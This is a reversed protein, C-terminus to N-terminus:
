GKSVFGLFPPAITTLNSLLFEREHFQTELKENVYKSTPWTCFGYEVLGVRTIRVHLMQPSKEDGRIYVTDQIKPKPEKKKGM